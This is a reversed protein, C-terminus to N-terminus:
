AVPGTSSLGARRMAARRASTLIGHRALWQVFCEKRRLGLMATLLRGPRTRSIVRPGGLQEGRAQYTCGLEPVGGLYARHALRHYAVCLSTAYDELRGQQELTATLKDYVRAQSRLKSESIVSATSVSVHTENHRRYYARGGEARVLRLGSVLARMMLDGDDDLTVAEDWGGTREFEDRRWLVACPPVWGTLDIWRRLFDANAEPLPVEPPESVWQGDVERLREWRCIAIAQTRNCIAAVLATLADPAIVDDADLFMLFEGRALRAGVNRAHSGGRNRELRVTRVHGSYRSIVEWSDDTSGDDVVIHEVAPYQQARVSEITEGVFAAANYCPTVVSVLGATVADSSM